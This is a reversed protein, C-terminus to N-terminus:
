KNEKEGYFVQQIDPDTGELNKDTYTQKGAATGFEISAKKPKAATLDVEQEGKADFNTRYGMKHAALVMLRRDGESTRGACGLGCLLEGDKDMVM